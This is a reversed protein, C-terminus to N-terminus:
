NTPNYFQLRYYQSPPPNPVIYPANTGGPSNSWHVLDGSQQLYVNVPPWNLVANTGFYGTGPLGVINTITLLGTSGGCTAGRLVVVLFSNTATNGCQDYVIVKVRNTSDIPFCTNTPPSYYVVWNSCCDDVVRVPYPVTTCNSCTYAVVNPSQIQICPPNSNCNGPLVTVTFVNSVSQGTCADTATVEVPITNSVPFCTGPPPDFVLTPGAAPCCNDVATVNYYVEACNSCTYAVINSVDLTICPTGPCNGEVLTVTFNNSAFNGCSDSATVTVSNTSNIPFCTGSPPSYRVTVNSCCADITNVSFNVPVCSSCTTVTINTSEITLCPNGPLPGYVQGTLKATSIVASAPVLDNALNPKYLVAFSPLYFTPNLGGVGDNAPLGVPVAAASAMFTIHTAEYDITWPSGPNYNYIGYGANFLTMYAAGGQTTAVGAQNVFGL